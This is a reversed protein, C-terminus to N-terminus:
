RLFASLRESQQNRTQICRDITELSQRAQRDVAKIPHAQFFAQVDDRTPQDCFSATSDVIAPLGQFVGLTKQLADWNAKVFVWAAHSSSPRALLGGIFYPLDQSRVEPSMAYDMTRKQFAPDSFYALAGRYQAQRGQNARKMQELYKDYLAQDGNLAALQLYTTALSPDMAGM